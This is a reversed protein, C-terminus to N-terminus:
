SKPGVHQDLIAVSRRKAVSLSNRRNLRWEVGLLDLAEGCLTLIDTSENALFYRPYEYRKGNRVIGNTVRCGDSHFLGRVFDGPHATVAKRQWSELEIRRM